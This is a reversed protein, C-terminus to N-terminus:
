RTSPVCGAVRRASWAPQGVCKFPTPRDTAGFGTAPRTPPHSDLKTPRGSLRARGGLERPPGPRQHSATAPAPPRAARDRHRRHTWGASGNQIIRCIYRYRMLLRILAADVRRPTQCHSRNTPTVFSPLQKRPERCSCAGFVCVGCVVFVVFVGIARDHQTGDTAPL